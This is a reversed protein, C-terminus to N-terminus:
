PTNEPSTLTEIRALEARRRRCFLAELEEMDLGVSYQFTQSGKRLEFVAFLEDYTNYYVDVCTLRDRITAAEAATLRSTFTM